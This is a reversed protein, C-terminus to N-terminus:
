VKTKKGREIYKENVHYTHGITNHMDVKTVSKEFVMCLNLNKSIMKMNDVNSNEIKKKETKQM